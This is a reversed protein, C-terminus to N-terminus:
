GRWTRIEMTTLSFSIVLCCLAVIYCYVSVDRRPIKEFYKIPKNELREIEEIAEGLAGPSEAQFARYPVGLSQFFRHIFFEPSTSENPNKPAQDLKTGNRARLYVWYLRTKNQRFLQRLTEQTQPEMITAGDSVLLIVRSGSMEKGRFFELAMALSPALNTLGKGHVTSKIATKVAHHNQTLGLTYIPATSFSVVAFMDQQRRDVLQTLLDRAIAGKSKRARGSLYGGAFSANMSASRDILLVVQAGTGIREVTGERIYPEALAGTLSVIAVAAVIRGLWDIASSVPDRPIIDAWTYNLHRQNARLLPIIALLSLWLIGSSTFAINTNM